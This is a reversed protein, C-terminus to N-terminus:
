EPMKNAKRRNEDATIVRLNFEAHLGCVVRSVLPYYHDVEHKIGTEITKREAEAYVALIALQNAWAPTARAIKAKRALTKLVLRPKNNQRWKRGRIKTAERVEPRAGYQRDYDKARDSHRWGIEHNTWRDRNQEYYDARYQAIHTANEKKYELHRARRNNAPDAYRARDHIADCAKCRKRPGEQMGKATTWRRTLFETVPKKVNCVKCTQMM